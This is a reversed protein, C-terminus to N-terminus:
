VAEKLSGKTKNVIIFQINRLAIKCWLYIIEYNFDKTHTHDPWFTFQGGFADSSPDRILQAM